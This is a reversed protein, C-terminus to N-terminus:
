LKIREVVKGAVAIIKFREGLYNVILEEVKTGKPIGINNEAVERIKKSEILEPNLLSAEYEECFKYTKLAKGRRGFLAWTPIKGNTIPNVISTTKFALRDNELYYHRHNSEQIELANESVRLSEGLTKEIIKLCQPCAYFKM